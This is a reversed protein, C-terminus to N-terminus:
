NQNFNEYESIFRIVNESFGDIHVWERYGVGNKNTSVNIMYAKSGQLPPRVGDHSQEDTIVILRDYGIKNMQKIAEALYTGSHTQSKIVADVGSMGRRPPVEKIKESFSFVRLDDANVISALSAAADIPKMDSNRSLTGYDMSGSVDVLVITKGDLKPLEKISEQMAIDLEPEFMPAYRAAAVFRFPLIRKKNGEIIARRVLSKDVDSQIMNRLNRLVAMYGLKGESLMREFTEKKDAGGSLNVEWTDPIELNGDILRQWLDAQAKDKPKAHVLFLVDRLKIANDRNYKALQYEDFKTFASALGKKLQAALPKKGDRWYLSLLEALEDARQVVKHITKADPKISALLLPVHRLNYKSRADIALESLTERSINQALNEIRKAIDTGNEYFNDEWLLCSLVSRRLEQDVNISVAKGGEHTHLNSQTKQNLRAMKTNRQKMEIFIIFGEQSTQLLTKNPPRTPVFSLPTKELLSTVTIKVM